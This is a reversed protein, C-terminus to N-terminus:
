EPFLPSELLVCYNNKCASPAIKHPLLYDITWTIGWCIDMSWYGLSGVM